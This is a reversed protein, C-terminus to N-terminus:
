KSKIEHIKRRVRICAFAVCFPFAVCHIPNIRNPEVQPLEKELGLEVMHQIFSDMGTFDYDNAAATAAQQVYKECTPKSLSRFFALLISFLFLVLESIFRKMDVRGGHGIIIHFTAQTARPAPATSARNGPLLLNSNSSLELQFLELYLVVAYHKM